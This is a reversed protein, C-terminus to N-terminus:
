IQIIEPDEKSFSNAFSFYIAYVIVLIGVIFVGMGIEKTYKLLGTMQLLNNWDHGSSDGGLLPLNM